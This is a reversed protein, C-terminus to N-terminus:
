TFLLAKVRLEKPVDDTLVRLWKSSGAYYWNGSNITTLYAGQYNLYSAKDVKEPVDQGPRFLLYAM